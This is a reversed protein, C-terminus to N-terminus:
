RKLRHRALPEFFWVKCVPWAPHEFLGNLLAAALSSGLRARQPARHSSYPVGRKHAGVLPSAAPDGNLTQVM